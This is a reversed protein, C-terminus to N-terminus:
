VQWAKQESAVFV